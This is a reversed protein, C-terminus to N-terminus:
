AKIGLLRVWWPRPKPTLEELLTGSVDGDKWLVM